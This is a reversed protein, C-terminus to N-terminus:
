RSRHPATQRRSSSPIVTQGLQLTANSIPINLVTPTPGAVTIFVSGTISNGDSDVVRVPVSPFFGTNGPTGSVIGTGAGLNLGAPLATLNTWATYENTGGLVLLQQTYPRDLVLPNEAFPVPLETYQLSLRSVNWTFTKTASVGAADTVRLTFTSLGPQMARGTLYSMGPAFSSSVNEASSILRIGTPLTGSDLAWAYPPTGGQAILRISGFSGITLDGPAPNTVTLVPFTPNLVILSFVKSVTGATGSVQITPTSSSSGNPTGSLLGAASLSLGSPLGFAFWTCVGGCDPASLTQSYPVGLTAPPLAGNTVIAFPDVTLGFSAYVSESNTLDTLALTPYFFTDSTSTTGSITGTSSDLTFGPPLTGLLSWSYNGSGGYVVPTFFYPVNRTANPLSWDSLVALPSVTMTIVRDFVAGEADRVRISPRYVGPAAIVGAFAAFTPPFYPPLPPGNLVRMGPMPAAGVPLEAEPTLMFEFPAVGGSVNDQSLSVIFVGLSATFNPGINLGLPRHTGAPYMSVAFWRTLSNGGTDSVSLTFSFQGPGTPTGSLVGATSLTLGPPLIEFPAVRWTRTGSGGDVTLTQSYPTGVNGDPLTSMSTLMLSTLTLTIQRVAINAPNASDAARVFFTYAGPANSAGVTGSITGDPSLTLGAPLSGSQISWVFPTPVCCAWLRTWYFQGILAEGLNPNQVYVTSTGGGIQLGRSTVLRNGVADTFRLTVNFFGNELPTGSVVGTTSDFSLGAPLKGDIITGSYPPM